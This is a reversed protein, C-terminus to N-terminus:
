VSNQTFLLVVKLRNHPLRRERHNLMQHNAAIEIICWEALRAVGGEISCHWSKNIMTITPYYMASNLPNPYLLFFVLFSINVLDTPIISMSINVMKTPILLRRINVLSIPISYILRFTFFLLLFYLGM